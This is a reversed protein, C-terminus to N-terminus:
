ADVKLEPWSRLTRPDLGVNPGTSLPFDAEGQAVGEGQEHSQGQM